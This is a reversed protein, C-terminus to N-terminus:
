IDQIYEFGRTLEVEIIEGKSRHKEGVESIYTANSTLMNALRSFPMPLPYIQYEGDKHFVNMMCLMSMHPNTDIDEMLRGKVTPERRNPIHLWRNITSQVCWKMGYFSAIAPGPLNIVPKNEIVGLAMPRGPAAAIYHHILKFNSGPINFNFDESGKATGANLIVMDTCTLAQKLRKLILDPDDASIPFILPDAGMQSLTRQVFISNTDINQGRMPVAGQPILESGTPIFAVKPKKWVPVMSIGGMALAAMDQPRLLMSKDIIIEGAKVTKGSPIVNTDRQVTVEPSIYLISGDPNLDVEEIMIVADFRDDFDDGTDARVFDIEPKWNSYDPFGDSFDSSRVAIGDCASSRYVPLSLVSKITEATVRGESEILPIYEVSDNPSWAAFFDKLAQEKTPFGDM